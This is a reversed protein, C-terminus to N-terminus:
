LKNETLRLASRVCPRRLKERLETLPRADNVPKTRRGTGGALKAVTAFEASTHEEVTGPIASLSVVPVM